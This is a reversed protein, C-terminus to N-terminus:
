ISSATNILSVFDDIIKRNVKYSNKNVILMSSIEHILELQKLGNQKLTQGTEVLDVIVDTMGLVAALEISGYLKMVSCQLGKSHFFKKTINPYKTGVKM